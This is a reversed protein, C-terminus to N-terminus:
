ASSFRATFFPEPSKRTSLPAPSSYFILERTRCGRKKTAARCNACHRENSEHRTAQVKAYLKVFTVSLGAYSLPLAATKYVAPRSNSDRRRSEQFALIKPLPPRATLPTLSYIQDRVLVATRIRGGADSTDTSSAGQGQLEDTSCRMPLAATALEIRAPPKLSNRNM